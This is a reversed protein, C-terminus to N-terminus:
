GWLYPRHLMIHWHATYSIQIKLQEISHSSNASSYEAASILYLFTGSMKVLWIWKRCELIWFICRGKPKKCEKGRFGLTRIVKKLTTPFILSTMSCLKKILNVALKTDVANSILWPFHSEACAKGRLFVIFYRGSLLTRGFVSNTDPVYHLDDNTIVDLIHFMLLTGTVIEIMKWVGDLSIFRIM